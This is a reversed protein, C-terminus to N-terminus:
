AELWIITSSDLGMAESQEADLVNGAAAIGEPWQYAPHEEAEYRQWEAPDMEISGARAGDSHRMVDVEIMRTTTAMTEGESRTQRTFIGRRWAVVPRRTPEGPIRGSSARRATPSPTVSVFM